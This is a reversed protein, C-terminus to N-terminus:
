KVMTVTLGKANLDDLVECCEKYTDTFVNCKGTSHIINTCQIAQIQNHGCVERLCQIVHEFTNHTDNVIIVTYKGKKNSKKKSM